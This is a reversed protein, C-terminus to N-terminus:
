NGNKNVRWTSHSIAPVTARNGNNPPFETGGQVIESSKTYKWLNSHKLIDIKSKNTPPFVMMKDQEIPTTNNNVYNSPLQLQPALEVAGGYQTGIILRMADYGVPPCASLCVVISWKYNVWEMRGMTTSQPMEHAM